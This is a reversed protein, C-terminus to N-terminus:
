EPRQLAKGCYFGESHQQKMIAMMQQVVADHDAAVNNTQGIDSTINYLLPVKCVPIDATSTPQGGICVATWDGM